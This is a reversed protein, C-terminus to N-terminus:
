SFSFVFRILTETVVSQSWLYNNDYVISLKRNDIRHRTSSRRALNVHKYTKNSDIQHFSCVCVCECCLYWVHVCLHVRSSVSQTYLICIYILTNYIYLYIYVYLYITYTHVCHSCKWRQWEVFIGISALRSYTCSHVVRFSLLLIFTSLFFFFVFVTSLLFIISYWYFWYIGHLYQLFGKFFFSDKETKM